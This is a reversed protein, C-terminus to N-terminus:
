EDADHFQFLSATALACLVMVKAQWGLVACAGVSVAGMLVKSRFTYEGTVGIGRKLFANFSSSCKKLVLFGGLVPTAALLILSFKLATGCRHSLANPDPHKTEREVWELSTCSDIGSLFRRAELAGRVVLAEVCPDVPTFSVFTPYNVQPARTHHTHHTDHANLVTTAAVHSVFLCVRHSVKSLRIAIQRRKHDNFHPVNNIVGGDLVYEGRFRRGIGDDSVYPICSSAMCADMLDDRSAFQSVIKNTLAGPGKSLDVVTISVFVKGSCRIHADEPM